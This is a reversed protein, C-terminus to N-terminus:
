KVYFIGKKYEIKETASKLGKTNLVYFSNTNNVRNFKINFVTDNKMCISKLYDVIINLEKEFLCGNANIYLFDKGQKSYEKFFFKVQHYSAEEFYFPSFISFNKESYENLLWNFFLTSQYGKIQSPSDHHYERGNIGFCTIGKEELKGYIMQTNSLVIRKEDTFLFSHLPTIAYFNEKKKQYEKFLGSMASLYNFQKLKTLVEVRNSSGIASSLFAKSFFGEYNIHDVQNFFSSIKSNSYEYYSFIKDETFFKKISNKIKNNESSSPIIVEIELSKPLSYDYQFLPFQLVKSDKKPIAKPKAQFQEFNLNQAIQLLIGNISTENTEGSNETLIESPLINSDKKSNNSFTQSKESTISANSEQVLDFQSLGKKRHQFSPDPAANLKRKM